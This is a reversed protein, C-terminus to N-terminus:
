PGSSVARGVEGGGNLGSVSVSSYAAVSCHKRSKRKAAIWVPKRGNQSNRTHGGIVDFLVRSAHHPPHIGRLPLFAEPLFPTLFRKRAKQPPRPPSAHKGTGTPPRDPRVLSGRRVSQRTARLSPAGGVGGRNATRQRARGLGALAALALGGVVVKGEGYRLKWRHLSGWRWREAGPALNARLANREVYRCVTYFHEDEQVPFSKVTRPVRAWQRYQPPSRALTAHAYADALPTFRSLEGDDRPWIVLHWHNPLVCYALLRM